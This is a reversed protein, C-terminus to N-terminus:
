CAQVSDLFISSQVNYFIHAAFLGGGVGLVLGMLTLVPLMVCFAVVRPVVL